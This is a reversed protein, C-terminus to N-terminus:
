LKHIRKKRKYAGIRMNKNIVDKDVHSSVFRRVFKDVMSTILSNDKGGNIDDLYQMYIYYIHL